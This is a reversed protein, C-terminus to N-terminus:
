KIFKQKNFWFSDRKTNLNQCLEEAKSMHIHCTEVFSRYGNAQVEKDFDYIEVFKNFDNLLQTLEKYNSGLNVLNSSIADCKHVFYSANNEIVEDFDM